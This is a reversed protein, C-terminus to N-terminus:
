SLQRRPEEDPYVDPDVWRPPSVYFEHRLDARTVVLLRRMQDLEAGRYGRREAEKFCRGICYELLDFSSIGCTATGHPM